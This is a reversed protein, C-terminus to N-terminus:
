NLSLRRFILTTKNQFMFKYNKALKLIKKYRMKKLLQM